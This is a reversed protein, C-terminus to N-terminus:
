RCDDRGTSPEQSEQLSLATWLSALVDFVGFIMIVPNELGFVVLGGVVLLTWPRTVITWRIFERAESRAAQLCYFALYLMLMGTVRVWVGDGPPQLGLLSCAAAPVCLLLMGATALYIAFVLVSLAARSM